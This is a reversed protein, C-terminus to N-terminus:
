KKSKKVTQYKLGDKESPDIYVYDGQENKRLGLSKMKKKTVSYKTSM